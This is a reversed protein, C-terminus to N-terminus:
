PQELLPLNGAPNRFIRTMVIPGGGSAPLTCNMRVLQPIGDAAGDWADTWVLQGQADVRGYAWALGSVPMLAESGQTVSSDQRLVFFKRMLSQVGENDELQYEVRVWERAMAGEDQVREVRALSIAEASGTFPAAFLKQAAALDDDIRNFAREMRVAPEVASGWLQQARFGAQLMAGTAGMLTSFLTVALLTEVLTMGTRKRSRTKSSGTPQRM